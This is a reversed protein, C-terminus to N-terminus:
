LNIMRKIIVSQKKTLKVPEAFKRIQNKHKHLMRHRSGHIGRMINGKKTIKFRKLVSKTTKQKPM